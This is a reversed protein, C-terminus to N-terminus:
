KEIIGNIEKALVDSFIENGEKSFHGDDIFHKTEWEISNKFDLYICNSDNSCINKALDNMHDMMLPVSKDEIHITWFRSFKEKRKFFPNLVQAIFVPQTKQMSSLSILTRINRTFLSDTKIDPTSFRMPAREKILRERINDVVYFVGSQRRFKEYCTENEKRGLLVNQLQLQGHRYYDPYSDEMYYNHLDNWGEYFIVLDPKLEPVFLSMQIIAEVTTYGPAGFNIVAYRNGLKKQLLAPWTFEDRLGTCFTTSGGLCAIRIKGAGQLNAGTWRTGLETTTIIDDDGEYNAKINKNLAVSLYPHKRFVLERYKKDPDNFLFHKWKILFIIQGTIEIFLLIGLLVLLNIKFTKLM